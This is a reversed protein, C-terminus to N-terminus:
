LFWLKLVLSIVGGVVATVFWRVRKRFKELGRLREYLGEKEHTSEFGSELQTLRANLSKVLQKLDSEM